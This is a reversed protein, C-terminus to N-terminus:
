RAFRNYVFYGSHLLGWNIQTLTVLAMTLMLRPSPSLAPKSGASIQISLRNTFQPSNDAASLFSLSFCCDALFTALAPTHPHDCPVPAVILSGLSETDANRSAHTQEEQRYTFLSSSSTVLAPDPDYLPTHRGSMIGQTVSLM